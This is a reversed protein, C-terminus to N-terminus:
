LRTAVIRWGVRQMGTPTKKGAYKRADEEDHVYFCGGSEKVTYAFVVVSGDEQVIRRPKKQPRCLIPFNHRHRAEQAYTRFRAGCSCFLTESWHKTM